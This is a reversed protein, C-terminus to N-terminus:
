RLGHFQWKLTVVDFKLFLFQRVHDAQDVASVKVRGIGHTQRNYGHLKAHKILGSYIIKTDRNVFCEAPVRTTINTPERSPKHISYYIYDKNLYESM